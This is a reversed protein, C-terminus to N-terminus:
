KNQNLLKLLEELSTGGGPPPDDGGGPPPNGGGGVGPFGGGPPPPPNNGGGPPPNEGGSGGGPPPKNGGEGGGGLNGTDTGGSGGGSEDVGSEGADPEVFSPVLPRVAMTHESGTPFFIVRSFTQVPRSMDELNYGALRPDIELSITIKMAIPLRNRKKADWEEYEEEGEYLDKYYMIEVSRLRSYILEYVGGEVIKEDVHFDQRRYLEFLEPTDPNEKIMYSVECLDSRVPEEDSIEVITSDTSTIMHMRDAPYRNFTKHEGLFVDNDHINMCWIGSVDREILDLIAPGIRTNLSEKELYDRATISAFLTAYAATMIFGTIAIALVVEMLTFGKSCRAMKHRLGYNSNMTM